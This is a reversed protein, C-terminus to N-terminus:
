AVPLLLRLTAAHTAPIPICGLAVKVRRAMLVQQPMDVMELSQEDPNKPEKIFCKKEEKFM